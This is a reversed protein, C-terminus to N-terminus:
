MAYHGCCAEEDSGGIGCDFVFLGCESIAPYDGLSSEINASCDDPCEHVYRKRSVVPASCSWGEHVTNNQCLGCDGLGAVYSLNYCGGMTTNWLIRDEDETTVTQDCCVIDDAIGDCNYDFNGCANPTASAWPSGEFVYPDAVCCDAITTDTCTGSDCDLTCMTGNKVACKESAYSMCVGDVACMGKDSSYVLVLVVATVTIFLACCVCAAWLAYNTTDSANGTTFRNHDGTAMPVNNHQVNQPPSPKSLFARKEEAVTQARRKHM